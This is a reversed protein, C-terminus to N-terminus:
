RGLEDQFFLARGFEIVETYQLHRLENPRKQHKECDFYEFFFTTPDNKYICVNSIQYKMKKEVTVDKGKRRKVVVETDDFTMGSEREYSDLLGISRRYNKQEMPCSANDLFDGVAGRKAVSKRTDNGGRDNWENWNERPATSERTASLLDTMKKYEVSNRMKSSPLALSDTLYKMERQTITDPGLTIYEYFYGFHLCTM